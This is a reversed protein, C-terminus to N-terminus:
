EYPVFLGIETLLDYTAQVREGAAQPTLPTLQCSVIQANVPALKMAEAKAFMEANQRAEERTWVKKFPVTEEFTQRVLYVPLAIGRWLYLPVVEETAQYHEFPASFLGTVALKKEGNWAVFLGEARQGSLTFGEEQLPFEAEGSCFVHAAVTGSAAVAKQGNVGRILLQGAVVKDGPKVVAEGRTVLIQEIIGDCKAVIDGPRLIQEDPLLVEREVISIILKTGKREIGVWSINTNKLVLHKEIERYDVQWFFRGARVGKEELAARVDWSTVRLLEKPGGVEISFVMNSLLFLAALFLLASFFWTKRKKVRNVVFPLGKRRRVRFRCASERALVRLRFIDALPVTVLVRTGSLWLVESLLIDEQLALNLFREVSLGKIELVLSGKVWRDLYGLM